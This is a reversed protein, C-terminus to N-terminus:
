TRVNILANKRNKKQCASGGGVTTETRFEWYCESNNAPSMKRTLNDPWIQTGFLQENRTTNIEEMLRAPASNVRHHRIEPRAVAADEDGGIDPRSTRRVGESRKKFQVIEFFFVFLAIWKNGNGGTGGLAQSCEGM